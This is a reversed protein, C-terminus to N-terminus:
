YKSNLTPAGSWVVPCHVSTEFQLCINGNGDNKEIIVYFEMRDEALAKKGM